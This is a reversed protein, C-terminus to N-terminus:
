DTDVVSYIRLESSDFMKSYLVSCPSVRMSTIKLLSVKQIDCFIHSCQKTNVYSCDAIMNPLNVLCSFQIFRCSDSFNPYNLGFSLTINLTSRQEVIKINDNSNTM